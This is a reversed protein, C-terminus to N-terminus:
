SLSKLKRELSAKKKGSTTRNLKKRLEEKEEYQELKSQCMQPAKMLEKLPIQEETSIGRAKCYDQPLPFIAKEHDSLNDFFEWIEKRSFTSDGLRLKPATVPFGPAEGNGVNVEESQKSEETM